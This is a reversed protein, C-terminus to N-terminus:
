RALNVTRASTSLKGKLFLCLLLLLADCAATWVPAVKFLSSFCGCPEVIGSVLRWASYGLFTILVLGSLKIGLLRTQSFFLLLASMVEAGIVIRGAMAALNRPVLRSKAIVESFESFETAKLYAALLFIFAITYCGGVIITRMSRM